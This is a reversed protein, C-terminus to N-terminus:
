SPGARPERPAAAGASSRPSTSGRRPSARPWSRWRLGPPAASTPSSWRCSPIASSCRRSPAPLAWGGGHRDPGCHAVIPLGREACTAFTTAMAAEAPFARLGITHLKLGRAGHEDVMTAIHAAAEAASLVAPNVTVFPLVEPRAAGVACIWEDVARLESAYEPYPPVAPWGGAPPLPRDPLEFSNLACGHDLGCARLSALAEEVTGATTGFEVDGDGYEAIPHEGVVERGEAADRFLHM